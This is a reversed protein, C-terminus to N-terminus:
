YYDYYKYIFFYNINLIIIYEILEFNFDNLINNNFPEKCFNNTTNLLSALM